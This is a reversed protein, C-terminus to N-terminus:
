DAPAAPGAVDLKTFYPLTLDPNVSCFEVRVGLGVRLEDAAVGIMNTLLQYGERLQVIAPAYPPAFEATVPRHVVTWSYIEGLGASAMWDLRFSLCFRCHESPPFTAQGCDACRQYRLEHKACGEWFPASIPSEAHPVRGSQPQLIHESTM